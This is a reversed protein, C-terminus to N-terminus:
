AERRRKGWKMGVYVPVGGVFLFVGWYVADRGAGGIAWISYLFGLVAVISVAFTARGTLPQRGQLGEPYRLASAHTDSSAYGAGVLLFNVHSAWTYMNLVHGRHNLKPVHRVAQM